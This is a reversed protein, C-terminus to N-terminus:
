VWLVIPFCNQIVKINKLEMIIKNKIKNSLQKQLDVCIIVGPELMLNHRKYFNIYFYQENETPKTETGIKQKQKTCTVSHIGLFVFVLPQCM